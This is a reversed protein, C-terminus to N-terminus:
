HKSYRAKERAASGLNEFNDIVRTWTSPAHKHQCMEHVDLWEFKLLCGFKTKFYGVPADHQIRSGIATDDQARTRYQKNFSRSWMMSDLEGSDVTRPYYVEEEEVV